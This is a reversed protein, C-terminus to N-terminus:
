LGIRVRQYRAPPEGTRLSVQMESAAIEALAHLPAEALNQYELYGSVISANHARYWDRGTPRAGFDSM